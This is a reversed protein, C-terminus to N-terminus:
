AKAGAPAKRREERLQEFLARERDSLKEPLVVRIRAYLDGSPRGGAARTQPQAHGRPKGDLRPMGLGALRISRGNQTLPPITVAIRKGALTEIHVEGGLVADELPVPVDTYLDDGRREFRPHPRVRVVVYLDGRPGARGPSPSGEGALRVRTGDRAGRPINVELRRPRLVAGQGQCVHCVAGAVQGSGGCTPCPEEGQLELARAAGHHAEELTIEAAYEVNQGRLPGRRGVSPRGGSGAFVNGFISEFGGAGARGVLDGLDNLNFQFTQGGGSASQARAKEFAEAQEWREGYRDYKARKQADSLVEYARTIAKFRAEAGKDGPNVDPHHKRALKRYAQKVEKDSASRKLGLIEYYDKAM